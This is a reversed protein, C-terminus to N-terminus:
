EKCAFKLLEVLADQHQEVLNQFAERKEVEDLNKTIFKKAATRLTEAEHLSATLFYDIANDVTMTKSLHDECQEVVEPIMYKNAAVLLDTTLDEEDIQETHCYKVLVQLAKPELDEIVAHGTKAEQFKESFMASFVPSKAALLLRHVPIELNGCELSFDCFRHVEKGIRQAQSEKAAQSKKAEQDPDTEFSMKFYCKIKLGGNPFFNPSLEKKSFTADAVKRNM